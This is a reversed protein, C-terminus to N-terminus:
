RGSLSRSALGGQRGYTTRALTADPQRGSPLIITDGGSPPGALAKLLETWCQREDVARCLKQWPSRRDARHWGVFAKEDMAQPSGNVVLAPQVESADDLEEVLEARFRWARLLGTLVQRL